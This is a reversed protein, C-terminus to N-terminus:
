APAGLAERPRINRHHDLIHEHLGHALRLYPPPLRNQTSESQLPNCSPPVNLYCPPTMCYIQTVTTHYSSHHTHKPQSCSAVCKRRPLSGSVPLSIRSGQEGPSAPAKSAVNCTPPVAYALHMHAMRERYTCIRASNTYIQDNEHLCLQMATSTERGLRSRDEKRREERSCDSASLPKACSTCGGLIVNRSKSFTSSRARGM